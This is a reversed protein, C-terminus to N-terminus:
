LKELFDIAEGAGKALLTKAGCSEFDKLWQLQEPSTVSGKLRKLEIVVIHGKALLVYDPFGPSTGERKMRIARRRAEPTHGTENPSHHYKYGKLQLYAVLTAAEQSELPTTNM